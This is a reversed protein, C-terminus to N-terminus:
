FNDCPARLENEAHLRDGLTFPLVALARLPSHSQLLKWSAFALAALLAVVALLWRPLSQNHINQPNQGPNGLHVAPCKRHSRHINTAYLREMQSAAHGLGRDQGPRSSAVAINIVQSGDPSIKTIFGVGDNGVWANHNSDIAIADPHPVSGQGFGGGSLPTGNSNLLTINSDGYDAVWINGNTDAAIGIPFSIAGSSFGDAGSLPQGSSDLETIDGLGSNMSTQENSIRVNNDADLTMGYSQNIGYGSLGSPFIPVGEPSFESLADFFNSVWVDGAGDIAITAPDSLGGGTITSYLLWDPPPSSLAPLFLANGEALTYVAAMNAAPNRAINLAADLTNAPAVGGTTSASFLPGCASGGISGACSALANALTNLKASAVTVNSPLGTGPSVGTSLNVLNAATRFANTLGQTNTSSSGVNGGPSLFPSLAWVSAVTTVENIVISTSATISGCQGVPSMLWAAANASTESVTQGGEAVVYLLSTTSPCSYTSPISFAGNANTIAAGRLLSKPASGNGTTGV